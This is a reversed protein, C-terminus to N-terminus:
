RINHLREGNIPCGRARKGDIKGKIVYHVSAKRRTEPCPSDYEMKKRKLTLYSGLKILKTYFVKM